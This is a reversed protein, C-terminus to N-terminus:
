KNVGIHGHNSGYRRQQGSEGQVDNGLSGTGPNKSTDNGESTEDKSSKKNNRKRPTKPTKPASKTSSSTSSASKASNKKAQGEM